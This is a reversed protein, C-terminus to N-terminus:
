YLYHSLFRNAEGRSFFQGERQGRLFNQGGGKPGKSSNQGGGRVAGYFKPVGGCVSLGGAPLFSLQRLM